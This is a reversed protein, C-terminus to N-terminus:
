PTQLYVVQTEMYEYLGHKGDAGGIGSKRRGAHFGQMAEFHERNVYTEGFRLERTAKMAANLDRTFVSSTLGYDSDNALALAEDLSDVVRLPPEGYPAVWKAGSSRVARTAIAAFGEPIDAPVQDQRGARVRSNRQRSQRCASDICQVGDALISSGVHSKGRQGTGQLVQCRIFDHSGAFAQAVRAFRLLKQAAADFAAMGQGGIKDTRDKALVFRRGSSSAERAWAVAAKELDGGAPLVHEAMFASVRQRLEETRASYGFDM